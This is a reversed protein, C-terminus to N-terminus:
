ETAQVLGLKEDVEAALEEGSKLRWGNNTLYSLGFDTFAVGSKSERGGREVTSYQHGRALSEVRVLTRMQYPLSKQGTPGKTGLERKKGADDSDGLEREETVFLLHVKPKSDDDLLLPLMADDYLARIVEWHSRPILEGHMEWGVKGGKALDLMKQASDYGLVEQTYWKRLWVWAKDAMDFVAWDDAKANTLVKETWAPIDEWKSARSGQVTDGLEDFIAEYDNLASDTDLWWVTNGSGSKHVLKAISLACSSKGVKPAGYVLLRERTRKTPPFM